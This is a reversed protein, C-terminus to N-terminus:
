LSALVQHNKSFLPKSRAAQQIPATYADTKIQLLNQGYIQM